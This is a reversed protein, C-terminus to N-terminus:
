CRRGGGKRLTELKLVEDKYVYIQNYGEWRWGRLKKKKVWNHITAPTVGLIKAAEAVTMSEDTM